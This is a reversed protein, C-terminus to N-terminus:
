IKLGKNKVILAILFLGLGVFVEIALLGWAGAVIGARSIILPFFVVYLIAAIGTVALVSRDYGKAGLRHIGAVNGIVVFFINFSLVRV